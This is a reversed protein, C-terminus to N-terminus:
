GSAAPQADVRPAESVSFANFAAVDAFVARNTIARFNTVSHVSIARVILKTEDSGPAGRWLSLVQDPVKIYTESAGGKEARAPVSSLAISESHKLTLVSSRKRSGGDYEVLEFTVKIDILEGYLVNRLVIHPSACLWVVEQGIELRQGFVVNMVLRAQTGLLFALVTIVWANIEAELHSQKHGSLAHQLLAVAGVCVLLGSILQWKQKRKNDGV